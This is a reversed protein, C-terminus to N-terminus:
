RPQYDLYEKPLEINFKNCLESVAQIYKHPHKSIWPALFQVMYKPSICRVSYGEIKGVGTLSETPYMIGGVIEGNEDKIFAHIDIEHGINDQYVLNYGNDDNRIEKYGEEKLFQLLSNLDKNNIGIDLDNHDRLQKEMLADVSWGGDVWIQIKKDELKKYLNVVDKGTMSM